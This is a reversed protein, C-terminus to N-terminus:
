RESADMEAVLARCVEPTTMLSEALRVADREVYMQGGSYARITADWEADALAVESIHGAPRSPDTFLTGDQNLREVKVTTGGLAKIFALENPFRVDTIVALKPRADLMKAYVARVWVDVGFNERYDVGLKQLLPADKTTMGHRVRAIAYLDDAFAFRMAGPIAKIIAAAATDKGHRARHGLAIVKMGPIPQFTTTL